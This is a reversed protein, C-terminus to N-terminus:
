KIEIEELSTIKQILEENYNVSMKKVLEAERSGSFYPIIIIPKKHRLIRGLKQLVMLESSNLVAFIGFKCETLNVGENLMDCATIHNIKKDNFEQLYESSLKNKSNICNKGLSETQEINACFTITRQKSLYKLLEKVIDTKQLALWTLRQKCLHLWRTKTFPSRTRMYKGKWWEIENNLESLYQRATCRIVTTYSKNRIHNWRDKYLCTVVRRNYDLKSGPNKIISYEVKSSDLELEWFYVKPDPLIEAEIAERVKIKEIYLNNFVSKLTYKMDRKVTASLLISNKINFSLLADQCRESLHHVEDFIILDWDGAKKPLSIYTVFEPKFDTYGWKEIEDKWNKILVLRPIVILIKADTSVKEKMLALAARTKGLGTPFELLINNYPLKVLNDIINDRNM